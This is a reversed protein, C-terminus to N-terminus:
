WPFGRLTNRYLKNIVAESADGNFAVSNDRRLRKWVRYGHTQLTFHDAIIQGQQELPYESLSRGDLTYQYSRLWSLLGRAIVNMGRERQWAHSMEQIFMHQLDDTSQSLDDRYENLFYIEGEHSMATHEDQLGLPLYSGKHIWIKHYQVTTSFVTKALAIEDTTLRRVRNEKEDSM